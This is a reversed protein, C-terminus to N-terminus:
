RHESNDEIIEAEAEVVTGSKVGAEKLRKKLEMIDSVTFVGHTMTGEIKKAPAHGARNLIDWAIQARLRAPQEEDRLMKEVVRLAEPAIEKVRKAVDVVEEDAEESLEKLYEKAMPNNITYSVTSESIRLDRAIDKSKQGLFHRRLIEMHVARLAQIDYNRNDGPLRGM